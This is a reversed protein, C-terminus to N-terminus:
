FKVGLNFQFSRTTPVGFMELGQGNGVTYTSEPDINDVKSWLLALNRGALGFTVDSFPLNDTVSNPLRYSLVVERLKAFDADEIFEETINFAIRQYYNEVNAAEVTGLGTERGELTNKHLGRFYAYANSAAYIKGGMKVDILFSLSLNGYNLTNGIGMTTPHVGTGFAMFEGQTPLGDADLVIAGNDDRAYGFGMIQSYAEGELAFIYANRTRSEEFRISEDDVDPDLLSVVKNNNHALNFTVDWSFDGSKIPTGYLLLEVGKNEMKGVNVIKSGFGSTPSVSANIIDDETQKNYYTFDVGARNGFLRLDFGVEIEKNLLPTLTSNPISGNSIAGLANGLHGQGRIGYTLNLGYPNAAAGPGSGTAYGGRLKLFSIQEPLDTLDSIVASLGIGYYLQNNEGTGDVSTLTSFWDNRVTGTLYIARMFSIEASGFLSNVQTEGFGYNVSRNATNGIAHLFPVNFNSGSGGISEDINKQQNGGAFLSIGIDDTLDKDYGVILETNIEQVERTSESIQGLTSFATGYPTLGRTRNNYRDLGIKGRTYLGDMIDWRMEIKGMLRNKKNNNEFQHTAWYPNTVFVNDNFQLEVGDANAGLKNEDGKLDEVDVSAPLSWVTYNANGPSDSLRPRNTAEEAIYTASATASLKDNFRANTRLTFNRRTLGSNPLIDKNDMNSGSFRFNYKDDGGTLTLTNVFTSGTRYFRDLNNGVSSYPRSVGDFQMVSSGDLQDGWAYLGNAFAEEETTPKMGMRGHGYQQQFDYLDLVSEGRFQTNFEVGIGKRNTGSKTTILIVGNSSRYGYLAAATTGKLVTVSEIDDPNISSIGDGGDAGGWMGAAGLNSNDIPVGDVVYLPQNNGGISSNGRIVVRTSGGAGTAPSSVNVGAVKGSLSNMVNTARAKSFSEAGIETVSYSLAKKDKEIGLATVVVEDLAVGEALVVDITAEAGATREITGYGILSYSITAGDAVELSYKGDIDTITGNTTGKEIVNVGILTIGDSGTITGSITQQAWSTVSLCLLFMLCLLQNKM